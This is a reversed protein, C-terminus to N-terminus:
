PWWHHHLFFCGTINGDWPLDGLGNWSADTWRRPGCATWAGYTV